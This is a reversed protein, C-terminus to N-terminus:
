YELEAIEWSPLYNYYPMPNAPHKSHCLDIIEWLGMTGTPRPPAAASGILLSITGGYVESVGGLAQSFICQKLLNVVIICAIM